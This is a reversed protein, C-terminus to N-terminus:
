RRPPRRAPPPPAGGGGGGGGGSGSPKSLQAELAGVASALVADDAADLAVVLDNPTAAAIASADFGLREYVEVNLPTAMAVMAARGGPHGAVQQSAQMLTVSDYYTGRRVEVHVTM